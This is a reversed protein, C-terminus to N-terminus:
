QLIISWGFAMELQDSRDTQGVVAKPRNNKKFYIIIAMLTNM